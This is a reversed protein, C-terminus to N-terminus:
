VSGKISQWYTNQKIKAIGRGNEMLITLNQNFGENNLLLDSVAEEAARLAFRSVARVSKSKVTHYAKEAFDPYDKKSVDVAYIKYDPTDYTCRIVVGKFKFLKQESM